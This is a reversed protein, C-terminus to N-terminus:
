WSLAYTMTVPGWRSTIRTSKFGALCLYQMKCLSRPNAFLIWWLICTMTKLQLCYPKTMWEDALLMSRVLDDIDGQWTNPKKTNQLRMGNIKHDGQVEGRPKHGITSYNQTFKLISNKTEEFNWQLKPNSQIWSATRSTVKMQSSPLLTVDSKKIIWRLM